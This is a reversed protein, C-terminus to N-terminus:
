ILRSFAQSALAPLMLASCNESGMDWEMSSTEWIQKQRTLTAMQSCLSGQLLMYCYRFIHRRCHLRCCAIHYIKPWEYACVTLLAWSCLCIDEHSLVSSGLIGKWHLYSTNYHIPLGFDLILFWKLFHNSIDCIIREHELKRSNSATPGPSFASIDKNQWYQTWRRSKQNQNM